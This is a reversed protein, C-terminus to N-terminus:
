LLAFPRVAHVSCQVVQSIGRLSFTGTSLRAVQVDLIHTQPSHVIEVGPLVASM